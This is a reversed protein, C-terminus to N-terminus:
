RRRALGALGRSVMNIRPANRMFTPIQPQAAPRQPQAAPRQPQAAPRQPQPMQQIAQLVQNYVPVNRGISSIPRSNYGSNGGYGSGGGGSMMNGIIQGGLSSGFVGLPSAGYGLQIAPGIVNGAGGLAGIGSGLARGAGGSM